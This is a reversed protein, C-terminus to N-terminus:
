KCNSEPGRHTSNKLILPDMFFLPPRSLKPVDRAHEKKKCREFTFRVEESRKKLVNEMFKCVDALVLVTYNVEGM